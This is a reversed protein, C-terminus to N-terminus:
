RKDEPEHDFEHDILYDLMMANCTIAALHKLKDAKTEAADYKLLHEQIHNRRDRLYAADGAGSRYNDEGHKKAGYGLREALRRLFPAYILDFRPMEFSSKAGSPSVWSM